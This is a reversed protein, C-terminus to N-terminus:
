RKVLGNGLCHTEGMGRFVEGRFGPFKAMVGEGILFEVLSCLPPRLHTKALPNPLSYLVKALEL